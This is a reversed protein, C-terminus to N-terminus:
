ENAIFYKDFYKYFINRLFFVPIFYTIFNGMVKIMNFSYVSVLFYFPVTYIIAWFINPSKFILIRMTIGFLLGLGILFPFMGIPGFDIYADTMFGISHSARGDDMLNLRTYKNTHDSDDILPKDPFLLRPKFYFLSSEKFIKGNEFPISNPVNRLVISFFEIYSLRDIFFESSILIDDKSLDKLLKLLEKTADTKSVVVRQSKEGGVLFDRYDFKVATWVLGLSLGLSLVVIFQIYSKYNILKKISFWGIVLILIIDKFGSFYGTFGVLVEVLVFAYLVKKSSNLLHCYIFTALLFGWKLKSIAVILTNLGSVNSVLVGLGTLVLSFIIYVYLLRDPRYQKPLKETIDFSGIRKKLPWYLGLAFCILGINSITNAIYIFEVDQHFSFQHELPIDTINGYVIKINIQLWQYVLALFITLFFPNRLKFFLFIVVSLSLVSKMTSMFHPGLIASFLGLFFVVIILKKANVDM